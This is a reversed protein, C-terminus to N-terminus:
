SLRAKTELAHTREKKVNEIREKEQEEWFIKRAKQDEEHQEILLPIEEIRKARALYDVKKEQGKLREQLEKKEKELQEVQKAMIEDEDINQLIKSGQPTKRLEDLREKVHRRKIQEHEEQQRQKNREEAERELRAMEAEYAKRRQEEAQEQEERERQDQSQELQEKRHEIIQRRQLIRHHEKKATLRYANLINAKLEEEEAVVSEKQGIIEMAQNLAQAMNIVQNRIQESPMSQIYPGEPIDEKQSVGLDTGFSLSKGM